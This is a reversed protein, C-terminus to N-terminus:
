VGEFFAALAPEPKVATTTNAVGVVIVVLSLLASLIGFSALVRRTRRDSSATDAFMKWLVVSMGILTAAVIAAIVALAAHYRSFDRIMVDLAASHDSASSSDALQERVQDLTDALEGNTEGVPLMSLLSSFPAVAGQVNAMVMVLSFLALMTTLVGASALAARRVLGTGGARLFAKWLLVGLVVLVALMIAAIVAKAVHYRVWYDVLSEMDPHFDTEGSRWYDSRWYGVFAVRIADALSGQDFFGGEPRSGALIRPALVFAVLLAATLPVLAALTRGSIGTSRATAPGTSSWSPSSKKPVPKM